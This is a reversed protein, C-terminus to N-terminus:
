GPVGIKGGEMPVLIGKKLMIKVAKINDTKRGELAKAIDTLFAAGFHALLYSKAAECKLAFEPSETADFVELAITGTTSGVHRKIQVPNPSEADRFQFSCKCIDSEDEGEVGLICDRWAWLSGTGRMREFISKNGTETSSKSLHHILVISCNSAEAIQAFSQLVVAMEDSSNEKASHVARLSDFVILKIGRSRVIESIEEADRPVNAFQRTIHFLSSLDAPQLNRARSMAHIRRQLNLRSAEEEVLLCPAKYAARYKGMCLGGTTVSLLMDLAIWTKGIGPHGAIFGRSKDTWLGEILWELPPESESLLAEMSEPRLKERRNPSNPYRTVVDSILPGIEEGFNNKEAMPSLIQLIDSSPIGAKHLKGTLSLFSSHRNGESIQSIEVKKKQKTKALSSLLFNKIWDPMKSLPQDSPHIEWSRVPDNDNPVAVYGGQGRIDFGNLDDIKSGTSPIDLMWDEWQYFFHCGRTTKSKWTIGFDANPWRLMWDNSDIDIVIFNNIPGTLVAISMKPTNQQWQTIEQNTPKRSQFPKWSFGKFPTKSDDHDVGYHPGKIPFFSWGLEAYSQINM